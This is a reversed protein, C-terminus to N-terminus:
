ANKPPHNPWWPKPHSQRLHSALCTPDFEDGCIKCKIKKARPPPRCVKLHEEHANEDYYQGCCTCARQMKGRVKAIAKSKAIQRTIDTFESPEAGRRAVRGQRSVRDWDIQAM